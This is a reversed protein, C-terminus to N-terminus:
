EATTQHVGFVVYPALREAEEQTLINQEIMEQTCTWGGKLQRQKVIKRMLKPGIYPHDLESPTAFNIDIKQIEVNALSGDELEVIIDTILLSTEDAIRTSDNPLVKVIRVKHGLLIGLLGELRQPAYEPNMVEKFFSDRLIKAGKMGTYFDLFEKKTESSLQEYLIRLSDKRSIEDLLEERERIMPFYRKLQNTM